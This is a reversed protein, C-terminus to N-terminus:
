VKYWYHYVYTTTLNTANTASNTVNIQTGGTKNEANTVNDTVYWTSTDSFYVNSLSSAGSFTIAHIYDVGSPITIDKLASCDYFSASLQKTGTPINVTTLSSCGYFVSVGIDTLSNPLSVTTLSKCDKFVSGGFSTVSSPIVAKVIRSEAIGETKISVVSTPLSLTNASYGKFTYQEVSKYKPSNGWEIYCSCGSLAEQGITEVNYLKISPSLKSDYFAQNGISVVNEIGSITKLKSKKFSAVGIKNVSSSLNITSHPFGCFVRDKIETIGEPINIAEYYPFLVNNVYFKYNSELLSITSYFPCSTDSAFNINFWSELSDVYLNFLSTCGEFAKDGIFGIQAPIKITDLYSQKKLFGEPLSYWDSDLSTISKIGVWVDSRAKGDEDTYSYVGPIVAKAGIVVVEGANQTTDESNFFVNQTTNPSVTKQLGAYKVIAGEEGATIDLNVFYGGTGNIVQFVYPIREKVAFVGATIKTNNSLIFNLQYKKEEPVISFPETEIFAGNSLNFRIKYNGLKDPLPLLLSKEAGQSDTIVIKYKKGM